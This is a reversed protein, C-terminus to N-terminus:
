ADPSALTWRRVRTDVYRRAISGFTARAYFIQGDRAFEGFSPQLGALMAKVTPRGIHAYILRKVGARKAAEAVALVPMHGGVSGAFHIARNWAAAEAFMLDANKAWKPFRFFEPAWVIKRGGAEILYGYTPHNTHTVRRPRIAVGDRAFPRAGIALGRAAAM